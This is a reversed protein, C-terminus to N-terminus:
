SIFFMSTSTRCLTNPPVPVNFTPGEPDTVVAGVWNIVGPGQVRLHVREGKTLGIVRPVTDKWSEPSAAREAQLWVSARGQAFRDIRIERTRTKSTAFVMWPKNFPVHTFDWEAHPYMKGGQPHRPTRFVEKRVLSVTEIYALLLASFSLTLSTEHHVDQGSRSNTEPNMNPLYMLIGAKSGKITNVLSDGCVGYEVSLQCRRSGDANLCMHLGGTKGSKGHISFQWSRPPNFMSTVGSAYIYMAWGNDPTLHDAKTLFSEMHKHRSRTPLSVPLHVPHLHCRPVWAFRTNLDCWAMDDTCYVVRVTDGVDLSLHGVVTTVVATMTKLPAHSGLFM